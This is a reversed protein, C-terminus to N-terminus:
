FDLNLGRVETAAEGSADNSVHFDLRGWFPQFVAEFGGADGADAVDDINRIVHHEFKAMGQVSEIVVFKAVVFDNNAAGAGAFFHAGEIADLALEIRVDAHDAIAVARSGHADASNHAAAFGFNGKGRFINQDLASPEFRDGNAAGRTKQFQVGFRGRAKAA